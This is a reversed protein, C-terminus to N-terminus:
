QPRIERILRELRPSPQLGNLGRIAYWLFAGRPQARELADLAAATDAARVRAVTRVEDTLANRMAVVLAIGGGLLALGVLVTAAVTTRVRVTGAGSRLRSVLSRLSRRGARPGSEADGAM